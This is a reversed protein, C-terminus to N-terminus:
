EIWGQTEIARQALAKTAYYGILEGDARRIRWLGSVKVPKAKKMDPSM